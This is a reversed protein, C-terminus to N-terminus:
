MCCFNSKHRMENSLFLKKFVDIQSVGNIPVHIFILFHHYSQLNQCKTGSCVVPDHMIEHTIPCLFEHPVEMDVPVEPVGTDEKHLWYLYLKLKDREEDDKCLQATGEDSSHWPWEAWFSGIQLMEMVTDSSLTLLQQGNLNTEQIRQAVDKMEMDVLWHKVDNATWDLLLVMETALLSSDGSFACSTVMSEDNELVHVCEGTYAVHSRTGASTGEIPSFDCSQVGLDHADEQTFLCQESCPSVCWLKLYGDSCATILYQSDPSFASAAIADNHGEVIMLQEMSNTSWVFAKEDDGATVLLHGDPSFRCTRVGTGSVQFSPRGRRGSDTDWLITSGDLSCSALLEGNPSFEVQNVGYRHGEMPSCDSEEFRGEENRLWLRVLKDGSGSAIFRNSFFACTNVAGDHEELRQLVKVTNEDVEAQKVVEQEEIQCCESNNNGFHSLASCPKVLESDLSLNGGLNWVIVLKDNSGELVAVCNGSVEWVRITKDLSSSAIYHGGPSFRVCMGASTHGDLSLHLDIKTPTIDLHKVYQGVVVHWLKVMHDNGCTALLYQQSLSGDEDLLEQLPSFDSCVVGLDHADDVSVLCVAADGHTTDSRDSAHWLKMVGLTCTTLLYYSDPTLSVSQITGEHQQFTRILSRHVLDWVCVSGDDGATVLLTSDPTFRCTRVAGGSVQIFTHVRTGSRVNWLMTSGDVSSTALMTSQPSFRVCTVGYKHGMLPSFPLEVYGDGVKWEWVRVTKDGSGSALFFNGGFDCCTVDSSHSTLTQLSEIDEEISMMRIM